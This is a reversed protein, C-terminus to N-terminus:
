DVLDKICRISYGEPKNDIGMACYGGNFLLHRSFNYDNTLQSSSWYFGYSGRYRLLGDSGFFLQGAAHMKLGSSFPGNWNTWNGANDVNYWETFSPLRWKTGLEINCPDNSILWDSNEGIETIWTTNPTRNTGDHKYGQQRNFQWYWGASAETADDVSSAQQDAGLNSTIWCKTTEGPINTVTGYTVTKNIPAVNGAIHVISFISGCTLAQGHIVLPESNGCANYAWVYRTYNTGQTLGTETRTTDTGLDTAAAFNDSTHWRYGTAIPMSSWVWTIETNSQLHTREVPPLPVDCTYTINEWRGGLYISMVETGDTNCNTCIVILGTAPNVIANRQVFTMRPPLLGRTTSKVDLMASNDPPSNNTNITAQAHGIKGSVLFICLFLIANKM